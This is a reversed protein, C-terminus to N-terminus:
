KGQLTLIIYSLGSHDKKALLAEVLADVYEQAKAGRADKLKAIVDKKNGNLWSEVIDGEEDESELFPSKYRSTSEEKKEKEKDQMTFDGGISDKVTSKSDDVLEESLPQYRKFGEKHPMGPVKSEAKDKAMEKERAKEAEENDRFDANDANLIMSTSKGVLEEKFDSVAVKHNEPFVSKYM